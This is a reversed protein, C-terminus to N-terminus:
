LLLVLMIASNPPPQLPVLLLLPLLLLNTLKDALVKLAAASYLLYARSAAYRM